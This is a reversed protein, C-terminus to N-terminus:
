TGRLLEPGRGLTLWARQQPQYPTRRGERWPASGAWRCTVPRAAHSRGSPKSAAKSTAHRMAHALRKRQPWMGAPGRGRAPRRSPAGSRTAHPKPPLHCLLSLTAPRPPCFQRMHAMMMMTVSMTMSMMTMLRQAGQLDVGRGGM